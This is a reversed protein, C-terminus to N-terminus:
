FPEALRAHGETIIQQLDDPTTGPQTQLYSIRDTTEVVYRCRDFRRECFARLAEDITPAGALEDGLAVADELCMAAGAALQPTPCHAADGIVLVRGRHWPDPALVTEFRTINIQDPERIAERIAPVMGGFPELKARILSVLENGPPRYDEDAPFVGYMYMRNRATPMFGMTVDASNRFNRHATVETPRPLAVRFAMLGQYAPRISDLVLDRVTSRLGDAGVVLDYDRCEGTSFTVSAGGPRQEVRAVSTATRVKAGERVAQDLLIGHLVPRMMGLMGPRDAGAASPLRQRWALTGDVEYFESDTVSYGSVACEQYLGLRDLARIGAGIMTIGSGIAHVHTQREVLDVEIGQRSLVMATALGAIGGGVVLANTMGSAWWETVAVPM